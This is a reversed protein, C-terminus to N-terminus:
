QFYQYFFISGLTAVRTGIETKLTCRRTNYVFTWARCALQGDCLTCCEQFSSVIQISLDNGRFDMDLEVQCDTGQSRYM